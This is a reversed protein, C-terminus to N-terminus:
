QASEQEELNAMPPTFENNLVLECFGVFTHLPEKLLILYTDDQLPHPNRLPQGRCKVCSGVNETDREYCIFRDWLNKLVPLIKGLVSVESSSKEERLRKSPNLQAGETSGQPGCTM